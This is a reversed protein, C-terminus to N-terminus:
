RGLGRSPRRNLSRLRRMAAAVPDISESLGEANTSRSLAGRDECQALDVAERLQRRRAKASMEDPQRHIARAVARGPTWESAGNPPGRQDLDFAPPAVHIHNAKRGRTAGVYLQKANTRDDIIVHAEDVTSGQATNITSAYDVGVYGAAVYDAPLALRHGNSLNTLYLEDRTGANVTWRDGNRVWESGTPGYTLLRNNARTVVPQGPYLVLGGVEIQSGRDLCGADLLRETVMENVADVVANTPAMVFVDRGDIVGAVAEAAASAVADSQDAHGHIRGHQEYIEAASADGNRLVLSANGEWEHEFRHLTDLEVTVVNPDHVLEAFMAGADVADLQHHDGVLVTRWNEARAIRSYEHLLRTDVMGAEDIIM